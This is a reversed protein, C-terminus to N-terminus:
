QRLVAFSIVPMMAIFRRRINIAHHTNNMESFLILIFIRTGVSKEFGDTFADSYAAFM